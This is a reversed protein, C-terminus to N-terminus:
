LELNWLASLVSDRLSCCSRITHVVAPVDLLGHRRAQIALLLLGGPLVRRDRDRGVWGIPFRQQLLVSGREAQHDLSRLERADPHFHVEAPLGSDHQRDETGRPLDLLDACFLDTRRGLRHGRLHYPPARQRQAPESRKRRCSLLRIM